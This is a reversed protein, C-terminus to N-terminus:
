IMGQQQQAELEAQQMAQQQQQQMNYIQEIERIFDEKNPIDALSLLMKAAVQPPIVGTKMVESFITLMRERMSNFPPTKKLIVDYFLTDEIKPFIKVVNGEQDREVGNFKFEDTMGNAQTIRFIRYDTYYKGILRLVIQSIRQKSFYMNELISTQMSAGQAIRTSQMIGSRENSGGLGLMSDNVGSIRQETTLLFNLHNSMYSLDRYKDDVRIKSLGGDQLLVLGDPKQMEAHAADADQFASAEGIIRNTAVTWLFKSNLKNIQDQIDVLNKVIGKPRGNKDKMCYIPILPYYDIGLPNENSSDNEESGELIIEGSFVVYYIKNKYIEKSHKKGTLEDLIEISEKVQKSYYCECIRIRQNNSDYYFDEGRDGADKQAEYEQGRYDESFYNNILDVADPYLQKAIDRDIWKCKIIFRADSGDVKRHFPDIYVNEWPVQEVSILDKGREDTFISCEMWGRGGILGDNFAVSHYFDFNNTDFTHKLLATLLQAMNDDSEERGVVQIDIKKESEIARVMDVTPQITNIVTPQQGRLQINAKEETTWQDGDYYEFHLQNQKRWSEEFRRASELFRYFKHNNKYVSM